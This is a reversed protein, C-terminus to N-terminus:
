FPIEEDNQFNTPPEQYEEQPPEKRPASAQRSTNQGSAQGNSQGDKKPELFQLDDLIIRIASRSAGTDKDEWKEQTLHGEIYVQHGKRLYQECLDALKRGTQRNFAKIDLWCPDDVWEDGSKKRNNVCLSFQAVRGGSQFTRVEPDKGLRGILHVKNLNAM